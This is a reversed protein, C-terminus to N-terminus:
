SRLLAADREPLSTNVAFGTALEFGAPQTVSPRIRVYWRLWPARRRGRSAGAIMLNYAPDDMRDRLRALSDRLLAAFDGIQADGLQGFDSQRGTPAIWIEGQTEAAYPVFAVFGPRELVLRSGHRRADDVMTEILGRGTRAFLREARRECATLKPPPEAIAVIQSHPHALSAGAAGGHNRFVIVAGARRALARYRDRWATVVAAAEDDTMAALGHDHRPTEIIVEHRGAAAADDPAVIPYRNPVVRTAWPGRGAGRREDIVSVLLAENGPCFPCDPHRRKAGPRRRVAAPRGDRGPAYITWRDHVPDYRIERSAAEVATM